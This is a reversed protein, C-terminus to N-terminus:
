QLVYKVFYVQSIRVRDSSEEVARRLEERLSERYRIDALQSLTKESLVTILKDRIRPEQRMLRDEANRPSYELGLSVLFFRTGRTDAPNVILDKIVYIGLGEEERVPEEETEVVAV